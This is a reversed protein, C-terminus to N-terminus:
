DSSRRGPRRARQLYANSVVVYRSEVVLITVALFLENDKGFHSSCFKGWCRRELVILKEVPCLLANGPFSENKLGNLM